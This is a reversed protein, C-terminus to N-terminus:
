SKFPLLITADHMNLEDLHGMKNGDDTILHMHIYSNHHTFIGQHEKSYFGIVEVKENELSYNIQGVHADKPSSVKSNEPLNQIHITASEIKGIIKFVFPKNIKEFEETLYAEVDRNSEITQLKGDYWKEVNGYVFFPASVKHNKEVSMTTDSIVKSVYIDGNNILIEGKLGSQPGIGFLGKKRDLTDLDIIGDLEGKWMVNKMAGAIQIDHIENKQSSSNCSYVLTSISVIQIIKRLM